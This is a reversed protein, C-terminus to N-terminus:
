RLEIEEGGCSLIVKDKFVAELKIDEDLMQGKKLFYTKSTKGNEIMVDPDSSWSIGVLKLDKVAEAIKLSPAKPADAGAVKKAGIKFIDRQRIKELYYSSSDKLLSAEKLTSSKLNEQTKFVLNPMKKLNVTSIFLNSIFYFTLVVLCFIILNNIIRVDLPHLAGGRSSQKFNHKLFSVRGLWAGLSLFSLATRRKVAAAQLHGGSAPKEILKLLEKEPSAQKDSPM